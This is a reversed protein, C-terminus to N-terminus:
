GVKKFEPCASEGFANLNMELNVLKQILDLWESTLSFTGVKKCVNELANSSPSICKEWLNVDGLHKKLTSLKLLHHEWAQAWKAYPLLDESAEENPFPPPPILDVFDMRLHHPHSRHALTMCMPHTWGTWHVHWRLSLHLHPHPVAHDCCKVFWLPDATKLYLNFYALAHAVQVLDTPLLSAFCTEEPFRTTTSSTLPLTVMLLQVYLDMLLHLPLTHTASPCTHFTQFDVTEGDKPLHGLMRHLLSTLLATSSSMSSSAASPRHICELLFYSFSNPFANQFCLHLQAEMRKHFKLSVELEPRFVNVLTESISKQQQYWHFLLVLYAAFTLEELSLPPFGSPILGLCQLHIYVPKELTSYAYGERLTPEPILHPPVHTPCYIDRQLRPPLTPISAPSSTQLDM